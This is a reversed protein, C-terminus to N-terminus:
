VRSLPKDESEPSDLLEPLALYPIAYVVFGDIGLSFM